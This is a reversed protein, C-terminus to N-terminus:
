VCVSLWLLLDIIQVFQHCIQTEKEKSTQWPVVPIQWESGQPNESGHSPFKKSVVFDAKSESTALSPLYFHVSHHFMGFSQWRIATDLLFAGVRLLYAKIKNIKCLRLEGACELTCHLGTVPDYSSPNGIPRSMRVKRSLPVSTGENDGSL